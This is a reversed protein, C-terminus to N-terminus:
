KGIFSFLKVSVCVIFIVILLMGANVAVLATDAGENFVYVGVAAKVGYLLLNDM